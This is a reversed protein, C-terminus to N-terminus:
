LVCTGVLLHLFLVGTSFVLLSLNGLTLVKILILLLCITVLTHSLEMVQWFRQRSPMIRLIALRLYKRLMSM